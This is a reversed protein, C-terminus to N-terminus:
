GGFRRIVAMATDHLMKSIDSMMQLMQQQKQLWNQMDVNALQADNGITTLQAELDTIFDRIEPEAATDIDIPTLADIIRRDRITVSSGDPQRYIGDPLSFEQGRSKLLLEGNEIRADDIEMTTETEM